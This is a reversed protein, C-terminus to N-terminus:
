NKDSKLWEPPGFARRLVELFREPVRDSVRGSGPDDMRMFGVNERRLVVRKRLWFPCRPAVLM